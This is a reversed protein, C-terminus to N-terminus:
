SRIKGGVLHPIFAKLFDRYYLGLKSLSKDFEISGKKTDYKINGYMKKGIPIVSSPQISVSYYFVINDNEERLKKLKFPAFGDFGEISIDELHYNITNKSM